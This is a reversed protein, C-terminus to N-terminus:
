ISSWNVINHKMLVPLEIGVYIRRFSYIWGCRLQVFRKHSSISSLPPRSDPLDFDCPAQSLIWKVLASQKRVGAGARVFRILPDTTKREPIKRVVALQM